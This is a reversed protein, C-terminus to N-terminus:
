SPVNYKTSITQLTLCGAVNGFLQSDDLMITKKTSCGGVNNILTEKEIRIGQKINETCCLTTKCLFFFSELFLM